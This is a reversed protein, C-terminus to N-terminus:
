EQKRPIALAALLSLLLPVALLDAAALKAVERPEVCEDRALAGLPALGSVPRTVDIAFRTVALGIRDVLKTELEDPYQEVVSPSIEGVILAVFAVFLAVPRGLCASLMVGLSVILSLVSVMAVYARLLNWGFSDAAVLLNIDRRPRLMVTSNGLNAFTLRGAPGQEAAVGERRRLPVSLVAQTMNSVSGGLQGMRFVGLVSQRMDMYSAFRMRVSRGAEPPYSAEAPFTWSAVRNTPIADYRDIARNELLRLVVSKSALRVAAPTNTDAMYSAYMAKAEERPSPMAPSLVHSCPVGLDVTFALIACALGLVAAGVAVHAAVKGLAVVTYRVPRVLTLQLRKAARERAISGTASALLSVVLLTFVGGLSFHVVLERLGAPTGDGKAVRPFVVMWAASAVVLMAVARSRVLARLELTFIELFKRM